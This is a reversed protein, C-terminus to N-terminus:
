RHGGADADPQELEKLLLKALVVTGPLDPGSSLLFDDGEQAAQRLFGIFAEIEVSVLACEQWSTSAPSFLARVGQEITPWVPLVGRGGEGQAVFIGDEDELCYVAGTVKARKVLFAVRQQASLREIALVEGASLVARTALM